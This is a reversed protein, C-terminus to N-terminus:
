VAALLLWCVVNLIAYVRAIWAPQGAALLWAAAPLLIRRARYSLSDVAPRLEAAELLPHYALQSYQMGDYPALGRYPFVPYERFAAIATAEHAEDFQLFATFGYVPNWFRAVVWLFLVVAFTAALSLAHAFRLPQKM